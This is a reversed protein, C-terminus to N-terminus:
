FYQVKEIPMCSAIPDVDLTRIKILMIQIGNHIMIIEFKM